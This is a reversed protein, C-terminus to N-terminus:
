SIQHSSAIPSQKLKSNSRLVDSQQLAMNDINVKKTTYFSKALGGLELPCYTGIFLAGGDWGKDGGCYVTM